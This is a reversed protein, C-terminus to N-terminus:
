VEQTTEPVKNKVDEFRHDRYASALQFSRNWQKLPRGESFAAVEREWIKRYLLVGADARILRESKRESFRGVGVQAVYDQIWIMNAKDDGEIDQIRLDGKLIAEGLEAYPRGLKGTRAAHRQQYANGEEGETIHM